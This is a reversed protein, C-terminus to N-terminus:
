GEVVKTGQWVVCDDIITMFVSGSTQGKALMDVRRIRVNGPEGIYDLIIFNRCTKRSNTIFLSPINEHAQVTFRDPKHTEESGNRTLVCQCFRKLRAVPESGSVGSLAMMLASLSCFFLNRPHNPIIIRSVHHAIPFQDVSCLELCTMQPLFLLQERCWYVRTRVGFWNNKVALRGYFTAQHQMHMSLIIHEYETSIEYIRSLGGTGISFLFFQM